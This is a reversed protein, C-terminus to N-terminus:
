LELLLATLLAAREPIRDVEIHEHDAHAGHGPVGLGDLTPIGLAGTFNGDSGGGTGGEQLDLGLKAGIAKAREFLAGTASRELPPRNWGGRVQIRAGPLVPQLGQVAAVLRDAEEQTWARLDIHATAHAAVVNSVTGGQVVGVNVTSGKELDTFSHLRLIQHALEQIASIGKEPEVGAHAARGEIELVFSGGGKRATKLVGGPLPSEMVLVYASHRAEEEILTRSTPSGVEEDSTMLVTVPRPLPLQLDGVARLVYEVLALSSQMDFIGPGYARGQEDVRFPHTALSGVPWVTDYHCLILAPQASDQAGEPATPRFTARVHNGREAVPIITVEAGAQRLRGALFEAFADLRPKDSSPTEQTVLAEITALIEAKRAAFYDLLNQYSM